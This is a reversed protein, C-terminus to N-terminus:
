RLSGFLEEAAADDWVVVNGVDTDMFTAIPATETNLGGHMALAVRALHWVHDGDGVTFSGAVRSFLPLARFPNILTAPSTIKDTLASFFERQREVRDLDGNATARTRVYGLADPGDLTQCGAEISLNALPDDIPEDPCIEVGGVADAVGALGGMGIEAYHDISLGTAQEVTQTLLPPGGYAFAANLKDMGYGPVEVYSDRPLSVLTPTGFTPLHLVMITDTRGSGEVDGTGLRARDEEDLGERSDSGVLLWNAGATSAIPEPPQYVVRTLRADGWVVLGVLAVLLVVIPLTCGCGRPRPLRFGGRRRRRPRPAEREEPFPEARRTEYARQRAQERAAARREEPSPIYQRPRAPADNDALMRTEAPRAPPQNKPAQNRPPLVRTPEAEPPRPAEERPAQEPGSHRPGRRRIPRGYRDRLPQGSAGLLFEGDEESRGHSPTM